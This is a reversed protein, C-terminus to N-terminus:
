VKPLSRKASWGRIETKGWAQALVSVNPHAGEGMQREQSNGSWLPVSKRGFKVPIEGLTEAKGGFIRSIM